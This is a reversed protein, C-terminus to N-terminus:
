QSSVNGVVIQTSSGPITKDSTNLVLNGADDQTISIVYNGATITRGVVLKGDGSFLDSVATSSLRSLIANQLQTNFRDLATSKTSSSGSSTSTSATTPAKYNNQNSANAQLGSANAPNGGFTPNVPTYVLDGAHAALSVM